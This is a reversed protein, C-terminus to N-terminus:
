CAERIGMMPLATALNTHNIQYPITETLLPKGYFSIGLGAASLMPLDNAGDGISCADIPDIGMAKCEQLLTTRKVDGDVIPSLLKGSITASEIDMRNCIFSDFGLREAVASAVPEFGGSVLATRVGHQKAQSILTDAGQSLEVSSAVDHILQENRGSLLSVREELAQKFDLEGRMAKNTIQKVQRGIGAIEAIDDLTESKVITSDMDCVLLKKIKIPFPILALDVHHLVAFHLLHQFLKWAKELDLDFMFELSILETQHCSLEASVSHESLLSFIAESVEAKRETSYVDLLFSRVRDESEPEFWSPELYLSNSIM